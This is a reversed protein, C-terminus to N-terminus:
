RVARLGAGGGQGVVARTATMANERHPNKNLQDLYDVYEPQGRAAKAEAESLRCAADIQSERGVVAAYLLMYEREAWNATRQHSMINGNHTVVMAETMMRKGVTTAFQDRIWNTRRFWACVELTTLATGGPEDFWGILGDSKLRRLVQLEVMHAEDSVRFRSSQRWVDVMADRVDKMHQVAQLAEAGM